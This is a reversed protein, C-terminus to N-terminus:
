KENKKIIENKKICLQCNRKKSRGFKIYSKLNTQRLCRFCENLFNYM